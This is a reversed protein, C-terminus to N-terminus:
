NFFSVHFAMELNEKPSAKKVNEMNVLDPRCRHVLACFAVGDKWSRDM